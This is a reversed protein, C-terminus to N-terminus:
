INKIFNLKSGIEKDSSIIEGKFVNENKDTDFVLIEVAKNGKLNIMRGNKTEKNVDVVKQYLCYIKDDVLKIDKVSNTGYDYSGYPETRDYNYVYEINM